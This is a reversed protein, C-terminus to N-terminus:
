LDRAYRKIRVIRQLVRSDTGFFQKQQRRLLAVRQNPVMARLDDRRWRDQDSVRGIRVTRKM